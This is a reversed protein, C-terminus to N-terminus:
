IFAYRMMAYLKSMIQHMRKEFKQKSEMIQNQQALIQKLESPIEQQSEKM